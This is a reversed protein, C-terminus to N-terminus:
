SPRHTISHPATCGGGIIVLSKSRPDRPEQLLEVASGRLLWGRNPSRWRNWWM